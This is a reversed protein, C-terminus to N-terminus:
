LRDGTGAPEPPRPGGGDMVDQECSRGRCSREDPAFLMGAVREPHEATVGLPRGSADETRM